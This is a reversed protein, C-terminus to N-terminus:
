KSKKSEVEIGVWLDAGGLPGINGNLTCCVWHKVRVMKIGM